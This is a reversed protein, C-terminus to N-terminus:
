QHICKHTYSTKLNATSMAGAPHPSRIGYRRGGNGNLNVFCNSFAVCADRENMTSYQQFFLYLFELPYKLQTSHGRLILAMFKFLALLEERVPEKTFKQLLM